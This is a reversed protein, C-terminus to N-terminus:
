FLKAIADKLMFLIISVIFFIKGRNIWTQKSVGLILKDTMSHVGNSYAIRGSIDRLLDTHTSQMNKIEGVDNKIHEIDSVMGSHELCHENKAM